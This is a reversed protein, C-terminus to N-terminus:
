KVSINFKIFPNESYGIGMFKAVGLDLTHPFSRNSRFFFPSTYGILSGTIVPKIEIRLHVNLIEDIYGSQIYPDTENVCVAELDIPIRQTM